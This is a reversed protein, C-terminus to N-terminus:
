FINHFIIAFFLITSKTKGKKPGKIAGTKFALLKVITPKKTQIKAIIITGKGLGIKSKKKAKLM